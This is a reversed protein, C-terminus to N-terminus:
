RAQQARRKEAVLSMSHMLNQLTVIGVLRNENVVPLMGAGPATLTGFVSALTDSHSAVGFARRMNSQVYGNGEDRLAAVINHRSIVGVMDGGRVVPFDDQLTHVARDLAHELTDAPSLIAFDTLMVDELKVQQLVSQFVVSREELQAALFLFVGILMWWSNWAGALIFALAFGQGIAVARRTAPLVDMRRVFMARLVRGADMPYAPLFNLMALIINIWVASRPLNAATVLPGARLDLEPLIGRAIGAIVLAALLNLAPALIATKFEHDADPRSRTGPDTLTIDGIPMLVVVRRPPFGAIASGSPQDQQLELLAHGAQHLLVSGLVIGTLALARGGADSGLTAAETIWVFLLLFLFSVHVRLEAGFIRGVAISWSRM